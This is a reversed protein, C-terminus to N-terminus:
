TICHMYGGSGGSQGNDSTQEETSIIWKVWESKVNLSNKGTRYKQNGAPEWNCGHSGFGWRGRARCCCENIFQALYSVM